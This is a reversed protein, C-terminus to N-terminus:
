LSRAYTLCEQARRTWGRGFRKFSDPNISRLFEIRTQTLKDLAALEAAGTETRTIGSANLMKRTNGEGHLYNMDFVMVAIKPSTAAIVACNAIGGANWYKTFGTSRAPDYGMTTVVLHPNSKQAIGFKTTGGPYNPSNVYGVRERQDSTAILGASVDPDSPSRDPTTMWRPNVEHTMTFYWAKEFPDDVPTPPVAPAPPPTDLPTAGPYSPGFPECSSRSAVQPATVASNSAVVNTGASTDPTNDPRVVNAVQVPGKLYPTPDTKTGNPLRVEFHLHAGTGVGTNGEKGLTQGGVVKQGVKVYISALHAYLTTILHQGGANLHKVMVYNGYGTGPRALIVEGDAACLVDKTVGGPYAFDLAFHNSSAGSAPPRRPGYGSTQVSGPLPHTLRIHTDDTSVVASFDYTRDDIVNAGNLAKVRLKLKKNRVSPDFTGVMTGAATNFTVGTFTESPTFEWSTVATPGTTTFTLNISANVDPAISNQRIKEPVPETKDAVSGTESTSGARRAFCDESEGPQRQVEPGVSPEDPDFEAVQINPAPPCCSM